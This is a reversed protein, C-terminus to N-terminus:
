AYVLEHLIIEEARSRISNMQRVWEMQNKRKLEETVSEVVCLQEIMVELREQAQENFDALYTWLNGSLVLENFVISRYERLYERHLHGWRGIPREEKPLEFEPLYYDGVLVYFIGNEEIRQKM